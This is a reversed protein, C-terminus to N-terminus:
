GSSTLFHNMISEKVLFVFMLHLFSKIAKSFINYMKATKKFRQNIYTFLYRVYSTHVYLRELYLKYTCKVHIILKNVNLVHIKVYKFDILDCLYMVVMRLIKSKLFKSKIQLYM